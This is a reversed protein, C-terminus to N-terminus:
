KIVNLSVEVEKQLVEYDNVLNEYQGRCKSYEIIYDTELDNSKNVSFLIIIFELLSIFCLIIVIKKM